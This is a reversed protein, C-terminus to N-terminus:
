RRGHEGGFGQSRWGCSMVARGRPGKRATTPLRRRAVSHLRRGRHINSVRHLPDLSRTRSPGRPWTSRVGGCEFFRMGPFEFLFTLGLTDRYFNGRREVNKVIISIQRGVRACCQRESM